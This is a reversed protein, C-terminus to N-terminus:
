VVSKRDLEDDLSFSTKGDFTLGSEEGRKVAMLKGSLKGIGGGIEANISEGSTENLPFYHKIGAPDLVSDDVNKEADRLWNVYQPIVSRKYGEIKNDEYKIRKTLEEIKKAKKKDPVNVVPAQNGNRTQM